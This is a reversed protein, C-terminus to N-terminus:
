GYKITFEREIVKIHKILKQHPEFIEKSYFDNFFFTAENLNDHHYHINVGHSGYSYTYTLGNMFSISIYINSVKKRTKIEYVENFSVFDFKKLFKEEEKEIVQKIRFLYKPLVSDDVFLLGGDSFSIDFGM